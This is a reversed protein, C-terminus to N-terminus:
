PLALRILKLYSNGPQWHDRTVSVEGHVQWDSSAPAQQAQQTRSFSPSQDRHHHVLTLGAPTQWWWPLLGPIHRYKLGQRADWLHKSTISEHSSLPEPFDSGSNSIQSLLRNSSIYNLPISQNIICIITSIWLYNAPMIQLWASSYRLNECLNHASTRSKSVRGKHRVKLFLGLLLQMCNYELFNERLNAFVLNLLRAFMELSVFHNDDWASIWANM